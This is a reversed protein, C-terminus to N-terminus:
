KSPSDGLSRNIRSRGGLTRKRGDAAPAIMLRRRQFASTLGVLILFVYEDLQPDGHSRLLKPQLRPEVISPNNTRARDTVPIARM